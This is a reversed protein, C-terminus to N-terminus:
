GWIFEYVKQLAIGLEFRELKRYGRRDPYEGSSLIWKDAVSFKGIDVASIDLDEDFNM